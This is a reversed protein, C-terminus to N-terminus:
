LSCRETIVFIVIMWFIIGALCGGPDNDGGGGGGGRWDSQTPNRPQWYNGPYGPQNPDFM